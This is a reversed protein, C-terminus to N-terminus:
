RQSRREHEVDNENEDRQREKPDADAVDSGAIPEHLSRTPGHLTPAAMVRGITAGHIEVVRNPEQHADRQERIQYERHQLRFLESM